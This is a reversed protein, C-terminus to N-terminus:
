NKKFRVGKLKLKKRASSDLAVVSVLMEEITQLDESGVERRRGIMEKKCGTRKVYRENVVCRNHVSINRIEIAEILNNETTGSTVTLGFRDTFFESLDEFSSYALGDVKRQALETVLESISNHKLVRSVEVKDSSRLTEPRQTFIEFLLQSLYNLYNEVHRVLVIEVIVQRQRRMEEIPSVTKSKAKLRTHREEASAFKLLGKSTIKQINDVTNALKYIFFLFDQIESYVEYFQMAARTGTRPFKVIKNKIKKAM